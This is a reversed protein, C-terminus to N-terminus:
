SVGLAASNRRLSPSVARYAQVHDWLARFRAKYADPFHMHSAEELWQVATSPNESVALRFHGEDAESLGAMAAKLRAKHCITKIDACSYHETAEALENVDAKLAGKAYLDFLKVREELNPTPVYFCYDLRGSRLFAADLAWPRNTAGVFMFRNEGGGDLEVLLSASMPRGDSRVGSAQDLEDVFFVQRDFQRTMEFDDESVDMGPGEYLFHTPKRTVMWLGHRVSFYKASATKGCGPAGYLLVNSHSDSDKAYMAFLTDMEQFYGGLPILEAARHPSHYLRVFARHYGQPNKRFKQLQRVIDGYGFHTLWADVKGIEVARHFALFVGFPLHVPNFQIFKDVSDLTLWKSRNPKLVLRKKGM